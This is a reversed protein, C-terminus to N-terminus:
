IVIRGPPAPTIEASNLVVPVTKLVPTVPVVM